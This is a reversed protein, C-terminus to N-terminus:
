DPLLERGGQEQTLEDLSSILKEVNIPKAILQQVGAADLSAQDIHTACGSLLMIPIDPREARLREALELGNMGPMRFDTMVALYGDADAAFEELAEEPGRCPVPQYGVRRLVRLTSNLFLEDDDVVLLRPGLARDAVRTPTPELEEGEGPIVGYAPDWSEPTETAPGDDLQGQGDLLDDIAIAICLISGAQTPTGAIPGSRLRLWRCRSGGPRLEVDCDEALKLSQVSVLHQIVADRSGSAVLEPLLRGVVCEPTSGLLRSAVENVRRIVGECDVVLCGTPVLELVAELGPAIRREWREPTESHEPVLSDLNAALNPADHRPNTV